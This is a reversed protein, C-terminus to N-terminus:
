ACVPLVLLRKAFRPACQVLALNHARRQRHADVHAQPEGQHLGHQDHPEDLPEDRVRVAAAPRKGGDVGSKAPM